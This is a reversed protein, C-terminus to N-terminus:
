PMGMGIFEGTADDIILYGTAGIIPSQGPPVRQGVFIGTARVIWFTKAADGGVPRPANPEVSAIDAGLIATLSIIAPPAGNAAAGGPAQAQMADLRAVARSAVDAVSRTANADQAVEVKYTPAALATLRPQIAVVAVATAVAAFATLGLLSGVTRRDM